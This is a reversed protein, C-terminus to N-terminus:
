DSSIAGDNLNRVMAQGTDSLVFQMFAVAAANDAGKQLLVMDQHIPEHFTAPVPWANAADAARVLSRAVLGLDANGTAVLAYAQGVNEGRVLKDSVTQDIGLHQLTQMAALGYPALKPNAIALARFDGDTLTDADVPGAGILVLQGVTYTRRSEVVGLGSEVLLEPRAADAALFLDYPAGHVIQTYLKGTSGASLTVTHAANATFADALAQAATRFNTAVAVNAHAAAAQQACLLSLCLILGCSASHGRSAAIHAPM